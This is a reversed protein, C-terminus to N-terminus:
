SNAAARESLKKMRSSGMLDVFNTRYFREKTEDSLPEVSEWFRAFPDRGGEVHPYDTSFCYLRDDSQRILEAVNETALPTFRMQDIFQESPTRKLERLEPTSKSWAKAAFDLRDMFSPVWGAGHEIVGGRLDPFREFVGDFCITTLFEEVVHHTSPFDKAMVGEGSGIFDVPAPRGNNMYARHIQFIGIHLMFPTRSEELLRWFPDLDPHGPSLEGAPRTPFTIAACGMEIAEKAAAVARVPDRLPVSAIGLLRDDDGCWAAMARNHAQAGRYLLEPDRIGMYQGSSFTSFILQGGIGTLDLMRSRESSNFAGLAEYGRKVEVTKDGFLKQELEPISESSHAGSDSMKIWAALKGGLKEIPMMVLADKVKADAFDALWNLGEMIHGDADFVMQQGDARNM